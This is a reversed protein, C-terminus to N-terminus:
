SSAIVRRTLDVTISRLLTLRDTTVLKLQIMRRGSGAPDDVIFGGDLVGGQDLLRALDRDRRVIEVAEDFEESSRQPRGPLLENALLESSVADIVVRRAELATHDFLVVTVITKEGSADTTSGATVHIGALRHGPARQAVRPHALVRQRIDNREQATLPIGPRVLAAGPKEDEKELQAAAVAGAAILGLALVAVSGGKAFRAVFSRPMLLELM